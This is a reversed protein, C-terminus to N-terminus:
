MKTYAASFVERAFVELSTPTASSAGRRPGQQMGGNNM